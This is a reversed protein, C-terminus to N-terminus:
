GPPRDRTATRTSSHTRRPQPPGLLLFGCVSAILLLVAGLTEMYMGASASSNAIVYHGSPTRLLGSAHADPLDGLLAILLAIVGLLGISLLAPRSGSRWVAFALTAAVLAIPLMAYDNHSGTSVSKVPAGSAQTRVELLTTFEAVILLLAGLLAATLIAARIGGERGTASGKDRAAGRPGPASFRFPSRERSRESGRSYESNAEPPPASM